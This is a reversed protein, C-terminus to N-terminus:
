AEEEPIGSRRIGASHGVHRAGGNSRERLYEVAVGVLRAAEQPGLGVKLAASLRGRRVAREVCEQVPCAYAGRGQGRQAPDFEM